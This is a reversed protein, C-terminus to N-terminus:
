TSANWRASPPRQQQREEIRLRTPLATNPPLAEPSFWGTEAIEGIQDPEGADWREIDYVLIHNRGSVHASALRPRGIVRLGTEERMERVVATEATEGPEVGGGPLHWGETYHHRVLLIRGQADRAFGRVGVIMGRTLHAHFQIAPSRLVPPLLKLLRVQLGSM